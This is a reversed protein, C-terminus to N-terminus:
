IETNNYDPIWRQELFSETYRHNEYHTCGGLDPMTLPICLPTGTYSFAALQNPLYIQNVPERHPQFTTRGM